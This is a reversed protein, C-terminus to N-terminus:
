PLKATNTDIDLHNYEKDFVFDMLELTDKENLNILKRRVSELEIKNKPKFLSISTLLKRLILPFLNYCQLTFIFSCGIHWSKILLQKLVKLDSAYDDFIVCSHEFEYGGEM